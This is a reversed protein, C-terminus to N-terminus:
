PIHHFYNWDAIGLHCDAHPRHCMLIIQPPRPGNGRRTVRRPRPRAVPHHSVDVLQFVTSTNRHIGCNGRCRGFERLVEPRMENIADTPVSGLDITIVDAHKQSVRRVLWIGLVFTDDGMEALMRGEDSAFV